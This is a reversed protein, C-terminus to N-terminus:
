LIQYIYLEDEESQVKLLLSLEPHIIKETSFVTFANLEQMKKFSFGQNELDDYRFYCRNHCKRVPANKIENIKECYSLPYLVYYGGLTSYGNYQAVEPYFGFCAVYGEIEGLNEKIKSFLEPKYFDAFTSTRKSERNIFTHYFSNELQRAEYHDQDFLNFFNILVLLIFATATLFRGQEWNKILIGISFAFILFWLITLLSYFRPNIKFLLYFNEAIFYQDRVVGLFGFLLVLSLLSVLLKRKAHNAFWFGLATIFPLVPFVRGFFHHHGKFFIIITVFFLGRPSLIGESELLNDRHSSVQEFLNLIFLRYEAIVSCFSFIFLALVFLGHIKQQRISYLLFVLGIALLLFINGLILSSYFPFGGVILWHIGANKGNLINLLAWLLLPQGAVTLGGSPWFPLLAFCLAIGPSLWDNKPDNLLYNRSLLLMGLYALLHIIIINLNYAIFAPFLFYLIQLISWESPYFGRPIGGLTQPIIATSKGFMEGSEALNKYWLLSSDLNDYILFKAEKLLFLNPALYVLLVALFIVTYNKYHIDLKM